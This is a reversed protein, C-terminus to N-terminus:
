IKGRKRMTWVGGMAMLSALAILAYESLTPVTATNAAGTVTFPIQITQVIGTISINGTGAAVLTYTQSANNAITAPGTISGGTASIASCSGGPSQETIVITDGVNGSVPSGSIIFTALCDVVLPTLVAAQVPAVLTSLAVTSSFVAIKLFKLKQM